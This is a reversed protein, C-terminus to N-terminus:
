CGDPGPDENCILVAASGHEGGEDGLSLTWEIRPPDGPTVVLAHDGEPCPSPATCVPGEGGDNGLTWEFHAAADPGGPYHVMTLAGDTAAEECSALSQRVVYTLTREGSGGCAFHATVQATPAPEPEAETPAPTAVAPEPSAATGGGCAALAALVASIAFSLAPRIHLRPCRVLM